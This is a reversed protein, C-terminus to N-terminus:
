KRLSRKGILLLVILGFGYVLLSDPITASQFECSSLDPSDKLLRCLSKQQTISSWPKKASPMGLRPNGSFM